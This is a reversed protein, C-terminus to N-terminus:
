VLRESIPLVGTEILDMLVKPYIGIAIILFAMGLLPLREWWANADTLGSWREDLEGWFVRQIMWLIYGAAFVIGVVGVITAVEYKEFTGLFVTIESVFGAM